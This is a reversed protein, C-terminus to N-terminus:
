RRHRRCPDGTWLLLLPLLPRPRPPLPFRVMVFGVCDEPVDVVTLDERVSSTLDIHVPGVRQQTVFEVYNKARSRQSETGYIELALDNENLDLEAGCVRAIKKKTSGGRGLVFAADEKGISM